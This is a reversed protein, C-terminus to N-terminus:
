FGEFVTELHSVNPAGDFCHGVLRRWEQFDASGRFHVNHDEVTDWRVLLRYAQPNEVGRQLQMGACGRARQFLPTAQRVGAEFEAEMGPKILLEASELVM